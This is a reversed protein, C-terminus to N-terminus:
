VAIYAAGVGIHQGHGHHVDDVATRVAISGNGELFEHYAGHACRALFFGYAHPGLHKMGQLLQELLAAQARGHAVLAAKGWGEVADLIGQAADHLGDLIGAVLRALIHGYGHVAGGALKALLFAPAVVVVVLLQGVAHGLIGVALPQAVVLLDLVQLLEDGLIRDVRDLVTEVLVVPLAPHFEGLGQAVLHLEHAVVEKHGVGLKKFFADLHTSGVGDQDLHVLYTREGLGEIGYLHCM